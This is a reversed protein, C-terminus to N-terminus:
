SLLFNNGAASSPHHLSERGGKRSQIEANVNQAFSFTGTRAAAIGVMGTADARTIITTVIEMALGSRLM